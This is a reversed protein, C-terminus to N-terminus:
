QKGLQEAKQYYKNGLEENGTRILAIGYYANALVHNPFKEVMTKTFSLLTQWDQKDAYIGALNGMVDADEEWELSKKFLVEANGYDKTKYYAVAINNLNNASMEPYDKSSFIKNFEEIAKQYDQPGTFYFLGKELWIQSKKIASVKEAAEFYREPNPEKLYFSALAANVYSSMQTNDANIAAESDAKSKTFDKLNYYMLGRENLLWNTPYLEIGKSLFEISKETMGKKSFLRAINMYLEEEQKPNKNLSQIYYRLANNEDNLKHYAKGTIFMVRSDEPYIALLSDASKQVRQASTHISNDLKQLFKESLQGFSFSFAVLAAATFFHTKM